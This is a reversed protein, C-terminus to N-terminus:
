RQLIHTNIKIYVKMYLNCRFGSIVCMNFLGSKILCTRQAGVMKPKKGKRKGKKSVQMLKHIKIQDRHHYIHEQLNLFSKMRKSIGIPKEKM